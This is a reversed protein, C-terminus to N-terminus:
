YNYIIYRNIDNDLDKKLNELDAVNNLKSENELIVDTAIVNINKKILQSVVRKGIFGTAGTVLFKIDM